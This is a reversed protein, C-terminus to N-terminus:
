ERFTALRYIAECLERVSIIVSSSPNGAEAFRDVASEVDDTLDVVAPSMKGTCREMASLLFGDIACQLLSLEGKRSALSDRM